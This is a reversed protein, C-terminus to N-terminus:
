HKIKECPIYRFVLWQDNENDKSKSRRNNNLDSVYSISQDLCLSTVIGRRGKAKCLQYLEFEKATFLNRCPHTNPYCLRPQIQQLQKREQHRHDIELELEIEATSCLQLEFSPKNQCIVNEQENVMADEREAISSCSGNELCNNLQQNDIQAQNENKLLCSKKKPNSSQYQQFTVKEKEMKFKMENQAQRHKDMTKNEKNARVETIKLKSSICPAKM